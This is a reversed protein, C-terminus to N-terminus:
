NSMVVCVRFLRREVTISTGEFLKAHCPMLSGLIGCVLPVSPGLQIRLLPLFRRQSPVFGHVFYVYRYQELRAPEVYQPRRHAPLRPTTTYSLLLLVWSLAVAFSRMGFKDLDTEAGCKFLRKTLSEGLDM